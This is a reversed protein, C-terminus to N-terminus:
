SRNWRIVTGFVGNGFKLHDRKRAMRVNDRAPQAVDARQAQALEDATLILGPFADRMALLDVDGTVLM